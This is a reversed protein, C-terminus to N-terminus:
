QFLILPELITTSKKQAAINESTARAKAGFIESRHSTYQGNTIIKTAPLLYLQLNERWYNMM